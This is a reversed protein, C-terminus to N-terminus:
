LRRTVWHRRRACVRACYKLGTLGLSRCYPGRPPKFFAYKVAVLHHKRELALAALLDLLLEPIGQQRTDHPLEIRESSVAQEAKGVAIAVLPWDGRRPLRPSFIPWPSGCRGRRPLRVQRGRRACRGRYRSAACSPWRRPQLRVRPAHGARTIDMRAHDFGVLGALKLSRQEAVRIRLPRLRISLANM